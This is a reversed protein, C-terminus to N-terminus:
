PSDFQSRNEMGPGTGLLRQGGQVVQESIGLVAAIPKCPGFSSAAFTGSFLLLCAKVTVNLMETRVLSPESQNGYNKFAAM